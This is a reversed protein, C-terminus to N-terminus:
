RCLVDICVQSEVCAVGIIKRFLILQIAKTVVVCHTKEVTLFSNKFTIVSYRNHLGKLKFYSHDCNALNITTRQTTAGYLVILKNWRRLPIHQKWRKRPFVETKTPRSSASLDESVDSSFTNYQM